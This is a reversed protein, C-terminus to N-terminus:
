VQGNVYIIIMHKHKAKLWRSNEIVHLVGVLLLLLIFLLTTDYSVVEFLIIIHYVPLSTGRTIRANGRM